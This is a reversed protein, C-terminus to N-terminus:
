ENEDGGGWQVYSRKERKLLWAELLMLAVVLFLGVGSGRLQVAEV